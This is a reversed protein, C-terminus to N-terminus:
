QEIANRCTHAADADPLCDMRYCPVSMAIKSLTSTIHDMVPRNWRVSSVSSILASYADLGKLPEVRNEPAQRLSVIARVKVATNRYCPTKGSWPTGCVYLDGDRFGLVPNDDNLLETGPVHELWLHSHTSKGTGSKGLFMNAKGDHCVVSSHIMLRDSLAARYTYVLMLSMNLYYFISSASVPKGGTMLPFFRARTSDPSIALVAVVSDDPGNFRFVATGNKDYITFFPYTDDVKLVLDLGETGPDSSPPMVDLRFDVQDCPDTAFPEYQSFDFNWDTSSGAAIEDACRVYTRSPERDGARVPLADVPLGSAAKRIRDLVTESYEMLGYPSKVSVSFKVDGVCYYHVTTSDM